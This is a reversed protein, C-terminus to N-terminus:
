DRSKIAEYFAEVIEAIENKGRIEGRSYAYTYDNHREVKTSSINNQIIEILNEFLKKEM